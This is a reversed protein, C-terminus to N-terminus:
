NNENARNTIMKTIPEVLRDIDGAGITLIVELDCNKLFETVQTKKLLYKDKLDIKDFIMKSSVGQIAKERAPYIDLLILRDLLQLSDAFEDAFDKTRSYLHPQFVGTIKRGPLLSRVSKILADLEMPHHAYDDIYVLKNNNFKIDFRRQVGEFTSLAKAIVNSKVGLLTAVASAALSNDINHFGPCKLKIGDINIKGDIDYYNILEKAKINAPYIDSTNNLGYTTTQIHYEKPKLLNENLVLHGNKDIKNMFQFFAENHLKINKYVDLHDADMSTIVAHFPNLNLFSKDYEDAEVVIWQPNPDGIYNSKYNKTIGGVFGNIKIGATILIHIIMSCVTTKGHTGAVAIVPTNKTIYGLAEARKMFPLNRKQLEQIINLHDKVAPTYIVGDINDPLKDPEDEYNIDIGLRELGDTISSRTKDYGAVNVGKEIFYRALSSMGIGGIGIFYISHLSKIEM